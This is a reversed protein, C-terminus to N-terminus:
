EQSRPASIQAPRALLSRPPSTTVMQFPDPPAAPAAAPAESAPSGDAPAPAQSSPGRTSEDAGRNEIDAARRQRWVSRITAYFDMSQKKLEDIADGNRAQLDIAEGGDRATPFARFEAPGDPNRVRNGKPAYNTVLMNVPDYYHGIGYGIADRPTTPGLFPLVLYPGEPIGWVAFTQGLDEEHYPLGWGSAFDFFGAVGVTTNVAFRALAVGSRNFNGQLVDNVATWPLKMNELFRHIANQAPDPLAAKYMGAAPKLVLEQLAINLDFFYRNMPEFPDHTEALQERKEETNPIICGTTFVLTSLAAATFVARSLKHAM